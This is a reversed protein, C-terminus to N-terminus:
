IHILSLQIVVSGKLVFLLKEKKLFCRVFGFCLIYYICMKFYMFFVSTDLTYNYIAPLLSYGTFLMLLLLLKVEEKRIFFRGSAFSILTFISGIIVVGRGVGFFWPDYIMITSSVILVFMGVINNNKMHWSYNTIM